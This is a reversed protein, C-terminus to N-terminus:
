AIGMIADVRKVVETPDLRTPSPAAIMRQLESKLEAIKRRYRDQLDTQVAKLMERVWGSEMGARLEDDNAQAAMVLLRAQVSQSLAEHGETSTGALYKSLLEFRAQQEQIRSEMELWRAEYKKLWDAYAASKRYRAITAERAHDNAAIKKGLRKEAERAIELDKVADRRLMHHIAELDEDSLQRLVSAM